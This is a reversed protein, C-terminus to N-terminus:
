HSPILEVFGPKGGAQGKKFFPKKQLGKLRSSFWFSMDLDRFYSGMWITKAIFFGFISGIYSFTTVRKRFILGVRKEDLNKYEKDDL